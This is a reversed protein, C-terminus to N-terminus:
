LMGYGAVTRSGARSSSCSGNGSGAVGLVLVLACKLIKVGGASGLLEWSSPPM